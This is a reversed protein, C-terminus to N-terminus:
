GVYTEEMRLEEAVELLTQIDLLRLVVGRGQGRRLGTSGQSEM